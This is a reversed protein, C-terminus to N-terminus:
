RGELCAVTGNALCLYLRGGAAAMGDFVPSADLKCRGLESGDATSLALVVAGLDPPPPEPANVAAAPPGAVFLVKGALVMARVRIGMPKSWREKREARDLAFLRYAGDELANSWHVRKRGYGYLSAADVALLRGYLLNRDRGSCGTALSCKTGFIWYSRHPWTDDLFGTLTFLHPNGKPKPAGQKDFVADRLYVHQADASLIDSLAGPMYAPGFQKPQRGTKPDPSYLPTTSLVKGTAPDVRCLRLGGDLYSSRGAVFYAAGGHVLVSGHVPLASELQGWAAVRREAGALTLRWALAGDTARLSYVCGDHSGFLAQGGHLTPPSDVRAGATFSWAPRGTEADLACLRHDDVSAVFVRGGAVTPSSIRSGVKMQWRRRVAAPVPRAARGSREADHRYTPWASSTALPSHGTAPSHGFAPGRELHTESAVPRHGSAVAPALAYFGTLKAAIYCGCAHPPAYLLGNCPMVGYRCVGRVWSHWLVDGTALDIFEAGRRGAIIYRDTAKNQWCRHHHGPNEPELHKLLKGTALDRQTAFYPGWAPGRRGKRRGQYPKFGGLWLTGKIVFADRISCLLPKQTWATKGTDISIAAINDGGACVAKGGGVVRLTPAPTAWQQRGSRLELCVVDRGKQYIVRDGVACLTNPRAAAEAGTKTWLVRGTEADLAVISRPAKAEIGRFRKLLPLISERTDLPSKKQHALQAWQKFEAVREDTVARVALVLVGKHCLIEETGETNDYVKVTKGTAADLASLAAHYGLTVYVREGVAVLKRQLQRPQQTWGCLHSFWQAIPRQWLLLGNYADRATLHWEPLRRLSGTPSRDAVYFIRGGTSVLAFITPTHEHSRAHRPQAIWQVRRPPGVVTDHAVPNGSADHLFHTWEDTNAPRPKVSKAWRGDRKAYLVGGPALVRMAEDRAVGGLREAVVLNVLNAAYPLRKGDFRDVAVPGYLGLTRIHDRAQRVRAPDTDLGHVRYCDSAHLAATLAGDGCGLHVVLGGRVGTADLIQRALDREAARAPAAAHAALAAAVLWAACLARARHPSGPPVTTAM